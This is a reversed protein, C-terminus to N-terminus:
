VKDYLVACFYHMRLFNNRLLFMCAAVLLLLSTNKRNAPLFKYMGYANQTSQSITETANQIKLFISFGLHLHRKAQLVLTSCFFLSSPWYGVM